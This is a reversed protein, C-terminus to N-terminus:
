PRNQGDGPAKAPPAADNPRAARRMLIEEGSTMGVYEYGQKALKNILLTMIYARGNAHSPVELGPLLHDLYDIHGDSWVIQTKDNWWQIMVYDATGEDAARARPEMLSSSIALISISLLLRTPKV